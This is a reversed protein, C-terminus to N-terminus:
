IRGVAAGVTVLAPVNAASDLTYPYTRPETVTGATEPTGSNAFVNSRQVARGPGSDAYGSASYMPHPVDRSYTGEM